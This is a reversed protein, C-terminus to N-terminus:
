LWTGSVIYESTQDARNKVRSIGLFRIFATQLWIISWLFPVLDISDIFTGQCKNASNKSVVNVAM